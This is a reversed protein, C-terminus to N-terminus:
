EWPPCGYTQFKGLPWIKWLCKGRRVDDVLEGYRQSKSTHAVTSATSSHMSSPPVTVTAGVPVGTTVMAVLEHIQPFGKVKGFRRRIEHPDVPPTVLQGVISRAVDGIHGGHKITLNTCTNTLRYLVDETEKATLGSKELESKESYWQAVLDANSQAM